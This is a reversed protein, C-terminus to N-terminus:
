SRVKSAVARRPTPTRATRRTGARWRGLAEDIAGSMYIYGREYEALRARVTRDHGPMSRRAEALAETFRQWRRLRQEMMRGVLDPVVRYYDRRDDPRRLREIVGYAALLRADTSVSAKSVGLEEALEALSRPADSVLLLGVLRGAIRPFGDAEYIDGMREAFRATSADM